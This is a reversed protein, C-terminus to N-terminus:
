KPNSPQKDPTHRPSIIIAQNYSNDQAKRSELTSKNPTEPNDDAKATTKPKPPKEKAKKIEASRM